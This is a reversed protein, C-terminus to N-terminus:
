VLEHSKFKSYKQVDLQEGDKFHQEIEGKWFVSLLDIENSIIYPKISKFAATAAILAYGLPYEMADLDLDGDMKCGFPLSSDSVIGGEIPLLNKGFAKYHNSNTIMVLLPLFLRGSMLYQILMDGRTELQVKEPIDAGQAARLMLDKIKEM